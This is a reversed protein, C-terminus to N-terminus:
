KRSSGLLFVLIIFGLFPNASIVPVLILALLLAGCGCTGARHGRTM